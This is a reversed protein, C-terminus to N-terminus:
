SARTPSSSSSPSRSSSSSRCSPGFLGARCVSRTSTRYSCNSRRSVSRSGGRTARSFSGYLFVFFVAVVRLTLANALLALMAAFFAYQLYSMGALLAASTSQVWGRVIFGGTWIVVAVSAIAVLANTPVDVVSPPHLLWNM